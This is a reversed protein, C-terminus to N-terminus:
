QVLGMLETATYPHDTVHLDTQPPSWKILPVGTPKDQVIKTKQTIIPCIEFPDM